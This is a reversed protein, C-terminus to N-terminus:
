RLLDKLRTAAKARFEPPGLIEAHDLFSLVLGVFVDPDRVVVDFEASGDPRDTRAASDGLRASAADVHGRDVLITATVAPEDGFSWPHFRPREASRPTASTPAGMEVAGEIRDLRFSRRDQRNLDFATVYWHGGQFDLRLPETERREGRYTFRASRRDRIADLLPAVPAPNPIEALPDEPRRTAEGSTRPGSGLKLLPDATDVGTLRVTAMALRLAALEDPALDPDPLYYREPPIHYGVITQDHLDLPVIELPIGIERLADKDREFQRRFSAPDPPYGEMREHIQDVRLPRPTDLLLATLNLLRELKPSM